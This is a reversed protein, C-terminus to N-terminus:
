AESAPKRSVMESARQLLLPFILNGCGRRNYRFSYEDLYSQLYKASVSHYVGGIGRKVLSWFGEITNTHVDGVVYVKQSHRIRRHGYDKGELFEVSNYIVSEDTYVMTKPLVFERLLANATSLKLDPTFKTIVKGQSVYGNGAHDFVIGETYNPVEFLKVAKVKDDGPPDAVLVSAVLLLLPIM